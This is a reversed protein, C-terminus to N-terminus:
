LENEYRRLIVQTLGNYRTLSKFEYDYCSSKSLRRRDDVSYDRRYHEKPIFYGFQDQYGVFIKKISQFGSLEMSVNEIKDLKYIHQGRIYGKDLLWKMHTSQHVNGASDCWMKNLLKGINEYEYVEVVKYKAIVKGTGETVYGTAKCEGCQEFEYEERYEDYSSVAIGDGGCHECKVRKGKPEYAWIIDNVSLEKDHFMYNDNIRKTNYIYNM